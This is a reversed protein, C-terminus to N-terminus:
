NNYLIKQFVNTNQLLENVKNIVNEKKDENQTKIELIVSISDDEIKVDRVMGFSVIDRSFGPHRHYIAAHAASNRRHM